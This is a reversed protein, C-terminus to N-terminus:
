FETVKYPPNCERFHATMGDLRMFGYLKGDRELVHAEAITDSDIKGSAHQALGDGDYLVVTIKM